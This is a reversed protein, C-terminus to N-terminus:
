QAQKYYDHGLEEEADDDSTMKRSLEGMREQCAEIEMKLKKMEDDLDNKVKNEVMSIGPFTRETRTVTLMPALRESASSSRPETTVTYVVNSGLNEAYNGPPLARRAEEYMERLHMLQKCQRVKRPDISISTGAGLASSAEEEEDLGRPAGSRFRKPPSDEKRVSPDM